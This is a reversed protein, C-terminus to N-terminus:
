KEEKKNLKELVERTIIPVGRKISTKIVEEISTILNMGLIWKGDTTLETMNVMGWDKGAKEIVLAKLKEKM